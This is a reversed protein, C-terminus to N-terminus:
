ESQTKRAVATELQITLAKGGGSSTASSALALITVVVRLM